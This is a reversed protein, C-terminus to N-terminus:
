LPVFALVLRACQMLNVIRGLNSNDAESDDVEKANIKGSMEQRVLSKYHLTCFLQGRTRFGSSHSLYSSTHYFRVERLMQPPLPYM